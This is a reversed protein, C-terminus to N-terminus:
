VPPISQCRVKREEARLKKELEIEARQRQFVQSVMAQFNPNDFTFRYKNVGRCPGVTRTRDVRLFGMQEFHRLAAAITASSGVGSYRMLGRFSIPVLGTDHDTFTMLAPLVSREAHTLDSWLGSRVLMEVVNQTDGSHIRPYWAERKKIHSGKPISPVPFRATIWSVADLLECCRVHMVLDINSWTHPDCIFCRGRNQKKQFRISPDADGNRHGEPRWCRARYGNVQLGLAQAVAVISIKERIYAFDPCQAMMPDSRRRLFVLM